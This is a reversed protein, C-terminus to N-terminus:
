RKIPNNTPKIDAIEEVVGGLLEVAGKLQQIGDNVTATYSDLLNQTNTKVTQSYENLGQALQTFISQLSDKIDGFSNVYISPLSKSKELAAQIQESAQINKDINIKCQENFSSQATKLSSTATSADKSVQSLHSTAENTEIQLAKFQGLTNKVDDLMSKANEISIQFQKLLEDSHENTSKQKQIISHSTQEAQSNLQTIVREVEKLMGNLKETSANSSESLQKDIRDMTTQLNQTLNSMNTTALGIQEKVSNIIDNNISATNSALRNVLEEIKAFNNTMSKTMNEIQIPFSALSQVANELGGIKGSMSDSLSTRLEKAMNDIADKLDKVIGNAMNDGPSKVSNAFSDLKKGLDEAVQNVQEVLPKLSEQMAKNTQTFIVEESLGSLYMNQKKNEEYLERLVNGPKMENGQQDKSTFLTVLNTNMREYILSYKEPQSIYYETDLLECLLTINRQFRNLSTKELIIYILSCAMGVLSTAFATGMGNLLENISSQIAETSGSDFDMVGITLGLFTGLLGLGVMLGSGANLLRHNVKIESLLTVLNYYLDAEEDTKMNGNKDPFVITAEYKKFIHATHKHKKIKDITNLRKFKSSLLMIRFLGMVVFLVFVSLTIICVIATLDNSLVMRVFENM